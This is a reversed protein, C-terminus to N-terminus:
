VRYGEFCAGLGDVGDDFDALTEDKWDQGQVNHRCSHFKSHGIHEKRETLILLRQWVEKCKNNDLRSAVAGLRQQRVMERVHFKQVVKELGLGHQECLKDDVTEWCQHRRDDYLRSGAGEFSGTITASTSLFKFARVVDAIGGDFCGVHRACGAVEIVSALSTQFAVYASSAVM